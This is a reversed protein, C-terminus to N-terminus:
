ATLVKNQRPIFQYRPQNLKKGRFHKQHLLYPIGTLLGLRVASLEYIYKKVRAYNVFGEEKAIWQLERLTHSRLDTNSVQVVANLKFVNYIDGVLGDLRKQVFGVDDKYQPFYQLFEDIEDNKILDIIRYKINPVNGKLERARSYSPTEFKYKNKTRKHTLIYGLNHDSTLVQPEIPINLAEQFTKFNDFSMKQVQPIGVDNEIYIYEETLLDVTCLHVISPNEYEIIMHNVPHRLVFTYCCNKGLRTYDLGCVKAAEDFLDYFSKNNSWNADRADICKITSVSWQNKYWWVRIIAGDTIPEINYNEWNDNFEKEM